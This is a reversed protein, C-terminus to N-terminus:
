SHRAELFTAAALGLAGGSIIAGLVDTADASLASAAVVAAVPLVFYWVRFRTGAVPQRHAKRFDWLSMAGAFMLALAWVVALSVREAEETDGTLVLVAASVSVVTLWAASGRLERSTWNAM